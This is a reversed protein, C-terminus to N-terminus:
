LACAGLSYDAAVTMEMGLRAWLRRHLLHETVTLQLHPLFVSLQERTRGTEKERPNSSQPLKGTTM